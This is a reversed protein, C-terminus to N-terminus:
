RTLRLSIFVVVGITIFTLLFIALFKSVGFERVLFRIPYTSINYIHNSIKIWANDGKIVYETAGKRFAEIATGIAENSTLMIVETKPNIEKIEKLVENGNKGNLNTDLIVIGTYKDVNQLVSESTHFTSINLTNGFKKDLYNRLSAIMSPDDDVIFLNMGETTM